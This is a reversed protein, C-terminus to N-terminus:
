RRRALVYLRETAENRAAIPGRRYWELDTLGAAELVDAVEPQDHLAIDVDVQHEFWVPQHKVGTGAHLALM